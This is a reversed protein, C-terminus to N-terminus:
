RIIYLTNNDIEELADYEEQSGAWISNVGKVNDVKNSIDPIDTKDAKNDLATNIESVKGDVYEETAFGDVSPIKGEVDSIAEQLEDKGVFDSTDITCNIVNGDIDINTGGVYQTTSGGGANVGLGMPIALTKAQRNYKIM